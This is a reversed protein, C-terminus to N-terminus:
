LDAKRKMVASVEELVIRIPSANELIIPATLGSLVPTEIKAVLQNDQLVKIMSREIDRPAIRSKQTILIKINFAGNSPLTNQAVLINQQGYLVGVHAIQTTLVLQIRLSGISIFDVVSSATPSDLLKGALKIAFFNEAFNWSSTWVSGGSLIAFKEDDTRHYGQPNCTFYYDNSYKIRQTDPSLTFSLNDGNGFFDKLKSSAALAKFFAYDEDPETLEVCVLENVTYSALPNNSFTIAGGLGHKLGNELSMYEAVVQVGNLFINVKALINNLDSFSIILSNRDTPNFLRVRYLTGDLRIVLTNDGLCSIVLPDFIDETEASDAVRCMEYETSLTDFTESFTFDIAFTTRGTVVPRMQQYTLITNTNLTNGKGVFINDPLQIYQTKNSDLFLRDGGPYWLILKAYFISRFFDDMNFLAGLYSYNTVDKTQLVYRGGKYSYQTNSVISNYKEDFTALSRIAIAKAALASPKLFTFRQDRLLQQQLM